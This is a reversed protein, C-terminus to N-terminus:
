VSRGIPHVSLNIKPTCGIGSKACLPTIHHQVILM